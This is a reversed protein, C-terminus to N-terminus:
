APNEQSPNIQERLRRRLLKGTPSRPLSDIAQIRAPRKFRGLHEECHRTV